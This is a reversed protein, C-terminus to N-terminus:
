FASMKALCMEPTWFLNSRRGTLRCVTFHPLFRWWQSSLSLVATITIIISATITIFLTISASIIVISPSCIIIFTSAAILTSTIIFATVTGDTFVSTIIIFPASIVQHWCKLLFVTSSVLLTQSMAGRREGWSSAQTHCTPWHSTLSAAGNYWPSHLQTYQASSKNIRLHLKAM